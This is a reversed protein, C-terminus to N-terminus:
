HGASDDTLPARDGLCEVAAHAIDHCAVRVRAGWAPDLIGRSPADAPNSNTNVREFWPNIFSNDTLKHVALILSAGCPNDSSGSIRSHISGENDGFIIVQCESILKGLYVLRDPDRLM